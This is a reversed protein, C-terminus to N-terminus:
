YNLKFVIGSSFRVDLSWMEFSRTPMYTLEFVRIGISDSASVDMGGGFGLVFADRNIAPALALIREVIELLEELTPDFGPDPNEEPLESLRVYRYGFLAHVFGTVREGRATFRPGILFNYSQVTLDISGPFPFSKYQGGVDVVLGIKEHFNDSISAQWGFFNERTGVDASRYSFGGFFEAKPYDKDQGLASSSLLLLVGTFLSLFCKSNM